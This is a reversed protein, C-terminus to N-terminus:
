PAAFLIKVVRTILRAVLALRSQGVSAISRCPKRSTCGRRGREAGREINTLAGRLRIITCRRVYTCITSSIESEIARVSALSLRKTRERPPVRGISSLVNDIRRKDKKKREKKKGRRKKKLELCDERVGPRVTPRESPLLRLDCDRAKKKVFKCSGGRGSGISGANVASIAGKM